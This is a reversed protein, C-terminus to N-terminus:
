GVENKMTQPQCVVAATKTKLIMRSGMYTYSRSDAPEPYGELVQAGESRAYQIAAKLLFLQLGQRRYQRNVFFCVVSWVPKEDIRPLARYRELATYTCRPAVSCWAVPHNDSYALLGVPIGERVLQELATARGERGSKRYESSSM